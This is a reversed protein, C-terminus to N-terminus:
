LGLKRGAGIPGLDLVKYGKATWQRAVNASRAGSRCFVIVPKDKSLGKPPNGMPINKAGKLTGSQFEAPSRVDVLTAGADLAAKLEEPSAGGGILRRLAFWGLTGVILGIILWEM